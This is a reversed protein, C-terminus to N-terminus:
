VYELEKVTKAPVTLRPMQRTYPANLIKEIFEGYKIDPCIVEQLGYLKSVAARDLLVCGACDAKLWDFPTRHLILPEGFMSAMFMSKEGLVLGVEKRLFYWERPKEPSWAIIDALIPNEVPDHLTPTPGVWVPHCIMFKGEDDLEFYRGSVAIRAGGLYGYKFPEHAHGHEKLLAEALVAGPLFDNVFVSLLNAM